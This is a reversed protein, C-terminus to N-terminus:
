IIWTEREVGTMGGKFYINVDKKLFFAYYPLM